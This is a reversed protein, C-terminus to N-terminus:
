TKKHRTFLNGGINELSKFCTDGIRCKKPIKYKETDMMTVLNHWYKITPIDSISVTVFIKVSKALAIIWKEKM